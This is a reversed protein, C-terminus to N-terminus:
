SCSRRPIACERSPVSSGGNIAFVFVCFIAALLMLTGASIFMFPLGNTKAVFGWLLLSLNIGVGFSGTFLSVVIARNTESSRDVMRAMMAPYSIGQTIGFLAGLFVTQWLSGIQSTLVLLGAFGVLCFLILRDRNMRDVLSGLALRIIVLIAGYSSFFIGARIGLGKAFLPYFTNMVAFGSGFVAVLIMMALHKGEFMTPFFRVRRSGPANADRARPPEHYLASLSAGVLGFLCLLLFYANFGAHILVTEGLYPGIAVALSGSIGYLGIGQVRKQFPLLDVLATSCANFCAAFALGQILRICLIWHSYASFPMFGLNSLGVFFIGLVMFTKRGYRDILGAVFPLVGLSTIGASAMLIGIDGENVGMDSLFVSLFSWASVILFLFFNSAALILFRRNKLIEIM